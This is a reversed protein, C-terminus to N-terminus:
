RARPASRWRAAAGNGRRPGIRRPGARRAKGAGAADPLNAVRPRKGARQPSSTATRAAAAPPLAAPSRARGGRAGGGADGQPARRLSEVEAASLRRCAGLPLGKLDITGVRVRMLKKLPHGLRAFLLALRRSRADSMRFELISRDPGVHIVEIAEVRVRGDEVFVGKGLRALAAQELRGRVEARYVKEVGYRPHTVRLAWEGDNTLLVVGTADADLRGASFLPGVDDPLLDTVCRRGRADRTACIFGRPKHLLFYERRAARVRQGDVLVRDRGPDVFAPLTQVVDGNVLVRGQLILEEAARRSAIGADSILKQLRVRLASAM